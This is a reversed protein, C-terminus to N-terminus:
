IVYKLLHLFNRKLYDCSLTSPESRSSEVPFVTRRREASGVYSHFCLEFSYDYHVADKLYVISCSYLVRFTRGLITDEIFKRM